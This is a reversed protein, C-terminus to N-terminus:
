GYPHEGRAILPVQVIVEGTPPCVPGACIGTLTSKRVTPRGCETELTTGTCTRGASRTNMRSASLECFTSPLAPIVLQERQEPPCFTRL